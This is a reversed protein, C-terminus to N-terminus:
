IADGLGLRHTGGNGLHLARKDLLGWPTKRTGVIRTSLSRNSARTGAPLAVDDRNRENAAASEPWVRELSLLKSEDGEARLLRKTARSTEDGDQKEFRAFAMRACCFRSKRWVPPWEAKAPRSPRPHAAAEKEWLKATLDEPGLDTQVLFGHAHAGCPLVHIISYSTAAAFFRRSSENNERTM